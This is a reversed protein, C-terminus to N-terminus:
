PASELDIVTQPNIEEDETPDVEYRVLTFDGDRFIWKGISSADGIGRWKNFSTLSKDKEDFDSNVLQDAATYGIVTMSKLKTQEQDEYRIDLEPEAFQLQRFGGSDDALYYVENSNYAGMGCDFKFLRMEHEPDSDTEYKHRYKLVHIQPDAAGPEADAMLTQCTDSYAMRFAEVVKDRTPDGKAAPTDGCQEPLADSLPGDASGPKLGGQEIHMPQFGQEQIAPNALRATYCGAFVKEDGNKDTAKIAVPVQFYVSGAAGEESIGGTAVDVRETDAYGKVFQDFTKAPKQDGFYDWARAYEKRNVANYFSRVLAGADSRNDLYQDEASAISPLAVACALAVVARVNKM